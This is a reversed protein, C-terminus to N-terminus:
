KNSSRRCWWGNWLYRKRKRRYLKVTDVYLANLPMKREREVAVHVSLAKKVSFM